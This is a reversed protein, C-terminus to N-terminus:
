LFDASLSLDSFPKNRCMRETKCYYIKRVATHFLRNKEEADSSEFNDIVYQLRKVAKDPLLAPKQEREAEMVAAELMKIRDNLFRWEEDM